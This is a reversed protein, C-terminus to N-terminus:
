YTKKFFFKNGNKRKILNKYRNIAIVQRGKAQYSRM